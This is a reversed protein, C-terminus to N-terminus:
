DRPQAAIEQLLAAFADDDRYAEPDSPTPQRPKPPALKVRVPPNHHARRPTHRAVKSSTKLHTSATAMPPPEITPTYGDLLTVQRQFSLRRAARFRRILWPWADAGDLPAVPILNFAVLMLNVTVFARKLELAMPNELPLNALVFLTAISAILLQVLVGGWAIAGKDEEAEEPLDYRCAGGFGTIDISAVQHGGRWVLIAHGLEHALVVTIYGLWFLPAIAFGGLLFAGLPLTWHVRVEAGKVRGVTWYQGM